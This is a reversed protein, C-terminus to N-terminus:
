RANRKAPVTSGPLVEYIELASAAGKLHNPSYRAYVRETIRSDAHGLYQAIESMDAGSEAMWVAATHRLTHLTVGDLKARKVAANFGTKISKVPKGYCEIVFDTLAGRRAESLAARVTGTMPVTARGKRKEGDDLPLRIVGRDFDVRNWTLDLVASVRAATSLLLITALRIHPAHASNLLQQFEARTLHREKPDPKSPRTIHPASTVKKRDVGWHLVTQLHGLETHIAGDSRGVKRRDAIHEVCLDHDIQDPHLHGFRPLIAKGTHRMTEAIPRGAKERRYGEWLMKVNIEKPRGKFIWYDKAWSDAAVKDGTGTSIRKRNGSDDYFCVAWKGRYRRLEYDPM